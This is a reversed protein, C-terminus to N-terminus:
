DNMRTTDLFLDMDARDYFYVGEVVGRVVPTGRRLLILFHRAPLFSLQAVLNASAIEAVTALTFMKMLLIRELEEFKVIYV